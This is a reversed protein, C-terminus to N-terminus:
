RDRLPVSLLQPAQKEPGPGPAIHAPWSAAARGPLASISASSSGIVAYTAAPGPAMWSPTASVCCLGRASGAGAASGGRAGRGTASAGPPPTDGFAGAPTGGRSGLNGTAGASGDPPSLSGAASGSREEAAVSARRSAVELVVAQASRRQWVTTNVYADYNDGGRVSSGAAEKEKQMSILATRKVSNPFVLLNSLFLGVAISLSIAMMRIAFAVGGVTNGDTLAAIGRIGVSGPVLCLIGNLVLVVSPVSSLRALGNGAVGVLFAALASSAEATMHPSALMSFLYGLTSISVIQAYQSPAAKFLVGFLLSTPPFFAVAALTPIPPCHATDSPLPPAWFVLAAGLQIGFGLLTATILAAFVRAGGSVMHKQGLEIAALTISLGPLLWIVAALADPFYCSRRFLVEVLRAVFSVVTAAVLPMVQAFAPFVGTLYDCCGVFGGLFFTVLIDLWGANFFASASLGSSVAFALINAWTPYMDPLEIIADLQAIADGLELSGAAVQQSLKDLMELKRMDFGEDLRLLYTESKNGGETGFSILVLTPMVAFMGPLGLGAAAKAM